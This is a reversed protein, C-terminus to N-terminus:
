VLRENKEMKSTGNLPKSINLCQSWFGCVNESANAKTDKQEIALRFTNGHITRARGRCPLGVGPRHEGHARPAFRGTRDTFIRSALVKVSQMESMQMPQNVISLLLKCMTEDDDDCM